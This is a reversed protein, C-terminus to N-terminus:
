NNFMLLQFGVMGDNWWEMMGMKRWPGMKRSKKIREFPRYHYLPDPETGHDRFIELGFLVMFAMSLSLFITLTTSSCVTSTLKGETRPYSRTAMSQEAEKALNM